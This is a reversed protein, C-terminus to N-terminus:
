NSFSSHRQPHGGLSTVFSVDSASFRSHNSRAYSVICEPSLWQWINVEAALPVPPVHVNDHGRGRLPADGHAEYAHQVAVEYQRQLEDQKAKLRQRADKILRETTKTAATMGTEYDLRAKYALDYMSRCQAAM